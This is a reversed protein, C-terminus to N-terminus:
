LHINLEVPIYIPDNHIVAIDVFYTNGKKRVTSHLPLQSNRGPNLQSMQCLPYATIDEIFILGLEGKMCIKCEVSPLM